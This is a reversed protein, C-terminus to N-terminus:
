HQKLIYLMQLFYSNSPWKSCCPLTLSVHQQSHFMYVLVPGEELARNWSAPKVVKITLASNLSVRPKETGSLSNLLVTCVKDSKTFKVQERSPKRWCVKKRVGGEQQVQFKQSVCNKIDENLFDGDFLMASCILRCLNVNKCDAFDWTSMRIKIKEVLWDDVYPCLFCSCQLRYSNTTLATLGMKKCQFCRNYMVPDNVMSYIVTAIVTTAAAAWSTSQFISPEIGPRELRCTRPCCVLGLTAGLVDM